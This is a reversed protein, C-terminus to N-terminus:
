WGSVSLLSYQQWERSTITTHATWARGEVSHLTKGVLYARPEHSKMPIYLHQEAKGRLSILEDGSESTILASCRTPTMNFCDNDCYVDEMYKCSRNKHRTM